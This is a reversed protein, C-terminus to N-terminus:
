RGPVVFEIKAYNLSISETPIADGSTGGSQYSSVLLDTFKIVMYEQQGGGAKRVTITATPFHKGTACAQFLVVSSKDTKKTFHFDQFQVKGAGSGAGASSDFTQTVGWSFSYVDIQEGQLHLVGVPEVSPQAPDHALLPVAFLLVCFLATTTRARM